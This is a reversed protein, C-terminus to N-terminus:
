RSTALERRSNSLLPNRARVTDPISIDALSVCHAALLCLASRLLIIYAIRGVRGEREIQRSGAVSRSREGM